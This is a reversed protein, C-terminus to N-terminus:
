ENYNGGAFEESYRSQFQIAYDIGLGILVPFVAMSVLTLGINLWGMIGITAVVAVLIIGLPLLSWKVRFVILLVGIMIIASLGMMVQMSDMMADKISMDLVPKGSVLTVETLGQEELSEKITDIIAGKTEDSVEGDLVILLMMHEENITFSEFMSRIEGTEDYIMMDLTTQETPISPVLVNFNDHIMGLNTSMLHLNTAITSLNDSLMTIQAAMLTQDEIMGTLGLIINELGAVTNNAIMPLAASDTSITSMQNAMAILQNNATTLTTVEDNLLPDTSLDNIVITISDTVALIQTSFTAYSSILNTVGIGLSQQGLIMSDIATTLQTLTADIDGTEGNSALLDSMTQLNVSVEELGTSLELLATEYNEASMGAFEKVLSVPSNVTFIEDYYSLEAELESMYAMNEVTFLNEYGDGEYLVIIPDSGFENQYEFNDIYETTDTQILTENGTKLEVQTVGALLAIFIAIGVFITKMPYKIVLDTIKQLM